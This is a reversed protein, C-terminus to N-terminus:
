DSSGDVERESIEKAPVPIGWRRILNDLKFKRLWCSLTTAHISIGKQAFVEAIEELTKNEEKYLRRLVVHTPEKFVEEVQEMKKTRSKEERKLVTNEQTQKEEM